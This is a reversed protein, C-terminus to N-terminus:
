DKTSVNTKIALEWLYKVKGYRGSQAERCTLIEWNQVPFFRAIEGEDFFRRLIGEDEYLHADGEVPIADPKDALEGTANLRCLLLGDAQLVRRIDSLVALTINEPFYHLSLDAVVAQVAGDEWPLGQTMDLPFVDIGPEESRLREIAQVSLDCASVTFGAANLMRANHGLGCGLDVIRGGDPRLLPLYPVLWGDHDPHYNPNGYAENWYHEIKGKMRGVEEDWIYHIFLDCGRYFGRGSARAPLCGDEMRM